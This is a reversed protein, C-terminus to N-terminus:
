RRRKLFDFLKRKRPAPASDRRVVVGAAQSSDRLTTDAVVSAVVKQVTDVKMVVAEVKEQTAEQRRSVRSLDQRVVRTTERLQRKLRANERTTEALTTLMAAQNSLSQKLGEALGEALVRVQRTEQRNRRISVQQQRGLKEQRKSAGVLYHLTDPSERYFSTIGAGLSVLVVLGLITAVVQWTRRNLTLEEPRQGKYLRFVRVLGSMAILTVLLPLSLSIIRADYFSIAFMMSSVGIICCLLLKYPVSLGKTFELIGWYAVALVGLAMTLIYYLLLDLIRTVEPSAQIFPLLYAVDVAYAGYFWQAIKRM